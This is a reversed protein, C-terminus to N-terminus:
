DKFSFKSIMFAFNIWFISSFYTTFFSGSPLIPILASIIFLLGSLQYVNKTELYNKAGIIISSIIFIFFCSIGFIGTESLLEYYIQHPHSSGGTWSGYKTEYKKKFSEVRFNKIGVGFIPNDKYIKTAVRYHAGYTSKNLYKTLGDKQFIKKVQSFYRLKYDSNYNIFTVFIAFVFTLSLLKSKFNINYIYFSFFVVIIFTKIFNSREGILFSIIIVLLALSVNLINNNKFKQYFYSLFFLVFGHFYAGIVSEKGTFGGLRFGPMSSQFGLINTGSYLEFCLDLIVIIFLVSWFKFLSQIASQETSELINKVFYIFFIILVFKFIRPASQYFNNSFYLNILLSFFFFTLLLFVKDRYDFNKYIILNSIIYITASILILLNISLNGVLIAIPFILLLLYMVKNFFNKDKLIFTNKM